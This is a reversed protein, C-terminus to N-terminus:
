CSKGSLGKPLASQLNRKRFPCLCRWHYSLFLHQLKNSSGHVCSRIYISSTNRYRSSFLVHYANLIRNKSADPSMLFYWTWYWQLWGYIRTRYNGSIQWNSSFNSYQVTGTSNLDCPKTLASGFSCLAESQNKIHQQELSTAWSSLWFIKYLPLRSLVIKSLLLM